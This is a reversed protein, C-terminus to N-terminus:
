SSSETRLELTAGAGSESVRELFDTIIELQGDSYDACVDQLRSQMGRFENALAPVRGPMVQITVRRRDPDDRARRVWGDRELRDLIGTMTAPTVGSVTALEGPSLPGRQGLLDMVELDIAAVGVRRSVAHNLRMLEASAARLAGQLQGM